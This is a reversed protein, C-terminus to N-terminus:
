AMLKRSKLVELTLIMNLMTVSLPQIYFSKLDFLNIGIEVKALLNEDGNIYLYFPEKFQEIFKSSLIVKDLIYITAKKIEEGNIFITEAGNIIIEYPENYYRRLNYDLIIDKTTILYDDFYM